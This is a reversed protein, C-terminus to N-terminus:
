LRTTSLSLSLSSVSIINGSKSAYSNIDHEAREKLYVVEGMRPELTHTTPLKSYHNGSNLEPRRVLM